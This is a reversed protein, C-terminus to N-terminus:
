GYAAGLAHETFPTGYCTELNKPTFFASSQTYLKGEGNSLFLISGDQSRALNLDHTILVTQRHERLRALTHGLELSNRPDLNATPEDFVIIGSEQALAQAILVLQQQGSSLEAVRHRRLAEIGLQRLVADRRGRDDRSYDKYPNKHVYRGLLVFTGVDMYADFSELKPPIYAIHRARARATLEAADRGDLTLRGEFSLLGCLAKALTSKGAGNAGLISLHGRVSLTIGHVIPQEAYGCRLNEIEIM